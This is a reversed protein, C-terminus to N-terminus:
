GIIVPIRALSADDVDPTPAPVILVADGVYGETSITGSFPGRGAGEDGHVFSGEGLLAGSPDELRYTVTAGPTGATGSVVFSTPVAQGPTPSEVVAPPTFRRLQDRTIPAVGTAGNPQGDILFQVADIGAVQTLTYVVQAVQPQTDATEFARDFDVLAVGDAVTLSNRTTSRPVATTLGAARDADTPGALLVDLAADAGDAADVPQASGKGVWGDHLFFASVTTAGATPGAPLPAIASAPPTPTTVAETTTLATTTAASETTAERDSCSVVLLLMGVVAM